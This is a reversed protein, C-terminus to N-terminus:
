MHLLDSWATYQECWLRISTLKFNYLSGKFRWCLGESFYQSDKDLKDQSFMQLCVSPLTMKSTCSSHKQYLNKVMQQLWNVSPLNLIEGQSTWSWLYNQTNSCKLRLCLVVYSVDSIYRSFSPLDSQLIVLFSSSPRIFSIIYFFVFYYLFVSILEAVVENMLFTVM